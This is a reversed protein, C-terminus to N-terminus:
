NRTITSSDTSLYQEALATSLAPERHVFKSLANEDLLADTAAQSTQFVTEGASRLSLARATSVPFSFGDGPIGDGDGDLRNGAQDTLEASVELTLIARRLRRPTIPSQPTLTVTRSNEDYDASALVDQTPRRRKKLLVAFNSVEEAAVPNLAESFPLVFAVITQGRREITMGAEHVTPPTKDINIGNLTAPASQNGANDTCNGSVSQNAGDDRLRVAPSCFVVGSLTDSGSFSVTVSTNNWGNANPATDRQATISPATKDINVGGVTASATNGALDTVSFTHSQGAAEATFMFSGSATGDPLGSLDDSARYSSVVDTNNWGNANAATDRQATITPATTDITVNFASSAESM